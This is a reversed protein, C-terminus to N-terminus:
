TVFCKIKKIIEYINQRSCEMKAAIKAASVGKCWLEYVEKQKDSLQEYPVEGIIKKAKDIRRQCYQQTRKCKVCVYDKKDSLTKTSGCVICGHKKYIQNRRACTGWELNGISINTADGDKFLVYKYKEPNPLFAEALARHIYVQYQKNGVFCAVAKYKKKKLFPKAKKYEGNNCLSWIDADRNIMFFANCIPRYGSKELEERTM